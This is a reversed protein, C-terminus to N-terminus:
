IIRAIKFQNCIRRILDVSSEKSTDCYSRLFARVQVVANHAQEFTLDAKVIGDGGDIILKADDYSMGTIKRIAQLTCIKLGIGGDFEVCVNYKDSSTNCM